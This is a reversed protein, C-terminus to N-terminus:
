ENHISTSVPRDQDGRGWELDRTEHEPYPEYSEYDYAPEELRAQEAAVEEYIKRAKRRALWVVLALIALVGIIAGAVMLATVARQGAQGPRPPPADVRQVQTLERTRGAGDTVTLKWTYMGPTQPNNFVETGGPAPPFARPDARTVGRLNVTLKLPTDLGFQQAAEPVRIEVRYPEDETERRIGFTLNLLGQCGGQDASGGLQVAVNITAYDGAAPPNKNALCLAVTQIGLPGAKITIQGEGVVDNNPVESGPPIQYEGPIELVASRPFAHGEELSFYIQVQTPEGATRIASAVEFTPEFPKEQAWSASPLLLSPVSALVAMWVVALTNTGTTLRKAVHRVAVGRRTQGNGTITAQEARPSVGLLVARRTPPSYNVQVAESRM